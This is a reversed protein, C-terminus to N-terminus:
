RAPVTTANQKGMGVGREHHFRQDIFESSM